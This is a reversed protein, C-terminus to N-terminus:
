NASTKDEKYRAVFKMHVLETQYWIFQNEQACVMGNCAEERAFTCDLFLDGHQEKSAKLHSKPVLTIDATPEVGQSLSTTLGSM